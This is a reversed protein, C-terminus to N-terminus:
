EITFTDVNFSFATLPPRPIAIATIHRRRIFARFTFRKESIQGL